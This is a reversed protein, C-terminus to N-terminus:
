VAPAPPPGAPFPAAERGAEQTMGSLESVANVIADADENSVEELAIEDPGCEAFHKTVIRLRRGDPETIFGCAKVLAIRGLAAAFEEVVEPAVPPRKEDPSAFAQPIRDTGIFDLRSLKRVVCTAGSPLTIQKRM